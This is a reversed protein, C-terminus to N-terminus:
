KGILGSSFTSAFIKGNGDAKELSAEILDAVEQASEYDEETPAYRAFRDNPNPGAAPDWGEQKITEDRLLLLDSVFDTVNNYKNINGFVKESLKSLDVPDKEKTEEVQSGDILAQLYKDREQVVKEYDGKKVMNAKMDNIASVPDFEPVNNGENGSVVNENNEDIIPM